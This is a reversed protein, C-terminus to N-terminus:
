THCSGVYLNKQKIADFQGNTHTLQLAFLAHTILLLLQHRLLLNM